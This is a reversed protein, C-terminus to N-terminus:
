SIRDRSTFQVSRLLVFIDFNPKFSSLIVRKLWKKIAKYNSYWFIINYKGIMILIIHTFLM